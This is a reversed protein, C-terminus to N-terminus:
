IKTLEYNTLVANLKRDYGYVAKIEIGMIQLMHYISLFMMTIMNRCVAHKM